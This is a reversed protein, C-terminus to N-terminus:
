CFEEDPNTQQDQRRRHDGLLAIQDGVGAKGSKLRRQPRGFFQSQEGLVADIRVQNQRRARRPLNLSHKAVAHMEGLDIGHGRDIRNGLASIQHHDRAREISKRKAEDRLFSIRLGSSRLPLFTPM